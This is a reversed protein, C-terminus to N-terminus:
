NKWVKKFLELSQAFYTKRCYFIFLIGDAVVFCIILNIIMATIGTYSHLGCLRYCVFVVVATVIAYYLHEMYFRVSSIGKFYYRHIITSGYGFNIVIISFLTAIIIGTLGWLKGLAINLIINSIAEALSRYRGEWWLGSANYYTSRVDGMCLSYFYICLLIMNGESLLMSEGMWIQIFPQYLCALCVTCLSALWMYMFNYKLMDNYNSEPSKKVVSDGVIALISQTAVAIISHVASLVYYYNGYAAVTELGLYKSIIINDLSNRSTGCLKQIFLGKIRQIINQINHSSVRGKPIFGGFLKTSFYNALLNESITAVITISIFLYYNRFAVLVLFQIVTKMLTALTAVKSVIDERKCASLLSKKYAFLWYGLVTNTLFMLYLVYLNTDAPIGSKIIMPLFPTIAIGIAFVIVGIIRYVKKYLNLLACVEESKNEALPKYMSFVMASSFGLETINLMQLISNFLSDLGLYNSGITYVVVTRLIFPMGIITFKNLIGWIINRKASKTNSM